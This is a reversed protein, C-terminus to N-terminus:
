FLGFKKKKFLLYFDTEAKTKFAETIAVGILMVEGAAILLGINEMLSVMIMTVATASSTQMIFPAITGWISLFLPLFFIFSIIMSIIAVALWILFVTLIHGRFIHYSDRMSNDFSLKKAVVAPKVFFFALGVIISLLWGIYPVMGAIMAIAGVIISAVLLPIYRRNAVRWSKSFERPKVSQHIVAGTIWLRILSWIVFGVFFIIAFNILSLVAATNSTATTILSLMSSLNTLLIGAAALFFISDLAFFPLWRKPQVSFKIANALIDGYSAM